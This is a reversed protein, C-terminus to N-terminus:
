AIRLDEELDDFRKCLYPADYSRRITLAERVERSLFVESRFTLRNGWKQLYGFTRVKADFDDLVQGLTVGKPNTIVGISWYDIGLGPHVGFFRSAKFDAVASSSTAGILKRNQSPTFLNETFDWRVKVEKAPPSTLFMDRCSADYSIEPVQSTGILGFVRDHYTHTDRITIDMGRWSKAFFLRNVALICREDAFQLEPSFPPCHQTLEHTHSDVTWVENLYTDDRILFLRKQMTTSRKIIDRCATSVSQVRLLDPAPLNLLVAELLEM